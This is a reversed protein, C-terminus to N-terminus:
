GPGTTAFSKASLGVRRSMEISFRRLHGTGDVRQLTSDKDTDRATRSVNWGGAWGPGMRPLALRTPVGAGAQYWQSEAEAVGTEVQGKPKSIVVAVGTAM